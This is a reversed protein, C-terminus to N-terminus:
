MLAYVWVAMGLTTGVLARAILDDSVVGGERYVHWVEGAVAVRADFPLPEVHGHEWDYEGEDGEDADGAGGGSFRVVAGQVPVRGGQDGVPGVAGAPEEGPDGEAEGRQADVDGGVAERGGVVEGGHEGGVDVDAAALEEAGEDGPGQDGPLDERGRAPEQVEHGGVADEEAGDGGDQDPVKPEDVTHFVVDEGEIM